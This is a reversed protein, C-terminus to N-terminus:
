SGKVLPRQFGICKNDTGELNGPNLSAIEYSVIILPNITRQKAKSNPFLFRGRIVQLFCKNLAGKAAPEGARYASQLMKLASVM